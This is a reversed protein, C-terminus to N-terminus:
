IHNVMTTHFSLFTGSSSLNQFSKRGFRFNSKLVQKFTTEGKFSIKVSCIVSGCWVGSSPTVGSSPWGCLHWNPEFEYPEIESSREGRTTKSWETEGPATWKWGLGDLKLGWRPHESPLNKAMIEPFNDLKKSIFLSIACLM